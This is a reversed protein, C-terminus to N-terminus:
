RAAARPLPRHDRALVAEIRSNPTSAARGEAAASLTLTVWTFSKDELVEFGIQCAKPVVFADRRSAAGSITVERLLEDGRHSYRVVPANSAMTLELAAGTTTASVAAHVDQCFAHSLRSLSHSVTIQRWSARDAQLMGRAFVAIMGLLLSMVTM